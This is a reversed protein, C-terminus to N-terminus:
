EVGSGERWLSSRPPRRGARAAQEAAKSFPPRGGRRGVGSSLPPSPRTGRSEAGAGAIAPLHRPKAGRTTPRRGGAKPRLSGCAPQPRIAQPLVGLAGRQRDPRTRRPPPPLRRAAPRGCSLPRSAAAAGGSRGGEPPGLALRPAVESGPYPRRPLEPVERRDRRRVASSGPTGAGDGRERVPAKDEACARSRATREQARSRENRAVRRCPLNGRVGRARARIGREAGVGGACGRRGGSGGQSGGAIAPKM